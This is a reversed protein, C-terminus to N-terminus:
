NEIQHCIAYVRNSEQAKIIANITTGTTIYNSPNEVNISFIMKFGSWDTSKISDNENEIKITLKGKENIFNDPKVNDM